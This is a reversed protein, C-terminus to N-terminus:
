TKDKYYRKLKEIASKQIQEVRSKSISLLKGTETLSQSQLFRHQLVSVDNPSLPGESLIFRVEDEADLNRRDTYPIHEVEAFLRRKQKLLVWKTQKYVITSKAIDPAGNMWIKVSVEHALEDITLGSMLFTNPLKSAAYQVLIKFDDAQIIEEARKRRDM